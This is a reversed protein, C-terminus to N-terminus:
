ISSPSAYIDPTVAGHLTWVHSWSTLGIIDAVIVAARYRHCAGGVEQKRLFCM